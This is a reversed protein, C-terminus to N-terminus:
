KSKLIHHISFFVNWAGLAGFLLRGYWIFQFKPRRVQFKPSRVTFIVYPFTALCLFYAGILLGIADGIGGILLEIANSM